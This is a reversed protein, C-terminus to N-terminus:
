VLRQVDEPSVMTSSALLPTQEILFVKDNQTIIRPWHKAIGRGSQRLAFIWESIAQNWQPSRMRMWFVIAAAARLVLFCSVLLLLLAAFGVTFLALVAMLERTAYSTKVLLGSVLAAGGLMTIRKM